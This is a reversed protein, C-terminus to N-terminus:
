KAKLITRVLRKLTPLNDTEFWPNKKLWIQNRPSPHVIPFYHPLFDEYHRVTETLTKYPNPKLYYKQAYAGVLVTLQIYPMLKFIQPHWKPAFDKRPPLDGSKGSGPFYFDMPVVGILGSQYFIYKDIGLWDRLRDGSKDKFYLGAEQTKLGPAQGIILIRAKEPASFLPAIQRQTFKQNAPDAMIAQKIALMETM